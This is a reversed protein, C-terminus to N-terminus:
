ELIECSWPLRSSRVTNVTKVTSTNGTNSQKNWYRFVRCFCSLAPLNMKAWLKLPHQWDQHPLCSMQTAGGVNSHLHSVTSRVDQHVLFPLFLALVLLLYLTLHWDWSGVEKHWTEPGLPGVAKWFAGCAPYGTHLCTFRHHCSVQARPTSPRFLQPCAKYVFRYELIPFGEQELASVLQVLFGGSLLRWILSTHGNEQLLM